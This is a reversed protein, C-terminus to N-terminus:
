LTACYLVRACLKRCLVSDFRCVPLCSRVSVYPASILVIDRSVVNQKSVAPRADALSCRHHKQQIAVAAILM